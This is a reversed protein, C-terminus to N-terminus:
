WGAKNKGSAVSACLSGQLEVHTGLELQQQLIVVLGADEVWGRFLILAQALLFYLDSSCHVPRQLGPVWMEQRKPSKEPYARGQGPVLCSDTGGPYQCFADEWQAEEPLFGIQM